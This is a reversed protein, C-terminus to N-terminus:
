VAVYEQMAPLWEMCYSNVAAGVVKGAFTMAAEDDGVLVYIQTFLLEFDGGTEGLASCTDRGMQILEAETFGESSQEDGSKGEIGVVSLATLYWENELEVISVAASDDVSTSESPEESVEPSDVGEPETAAESSTTNSVPAQDSEDGRAANVVLLIVTVIIVLMVGMVVFGLKAQKKEEPTQESWPKTEMKKGKKTKNEDRLPQQFAEVYESMQAAAVPDNKPLGGQPTTKLNMNHNLYTVGQPSVDIPKTLASPDTPDKVYYRGDPLDRLKQGWDDEDMAAQMAANRRTEAEAKEREKQTAKAAKEDLMNAKAEEYSELLKRQIDNLGDDERFEPVIRSPPPDIREGFITTKDSPTTGYIKNFLAEKKRLREAPDTELRYDEEATIFGAQVPDVVVRLPNHYGTKRGSKIDDLPINLINTAVYDSPIMKDPPTSAVGNEKEFKVVPVMGGEHATLEGTADNIVGDVTYTKGNMKIFPTKPGPDDILMKGEPFRRKLEAQTKLMANIRDQTDRMNILELLQEDTPGESQHEYCECDQRNGPCTLCGVNGSSEDPCALCKGEALAKLWRHLKLNGVQLALSPKWEPGRVVDPPGSTDHIECPWNMLDCTCEPERENGNNDTM